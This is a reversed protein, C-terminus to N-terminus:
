LRRPWVGGLKSGTLKAAASKIAEILEGARARDEVEVHPQVDVWVQSPWTVAVRIAGFPVGTSSDLL